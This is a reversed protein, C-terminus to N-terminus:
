PLNELSFYREILVQLPMRVPNDEGAVGFLAVDLVDHVAEFLHGSNSVAEDCPRLVDRRVMRRRRIFFDLFVSPDIRAMDVHEPSDIREAHGRIQDFV